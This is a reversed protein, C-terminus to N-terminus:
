HGRAVRAAARCRLLPAKNLHSGLCHSLAKPGIQPLGLSYKSVASALSAQQDCCDTGKCM